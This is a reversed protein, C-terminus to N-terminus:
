HVRLGSSQIFSSYAHTITSIMVERITCNPVADHITRDIGIGRWERNWFRCWVPLSGDRPGLMDNRSQKRLLDTIPFHIQRTVYEFVEKQYATPVSWQANYSTGSSSYALGYDLYIGYPPNPDLLHWAM